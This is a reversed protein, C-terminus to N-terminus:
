EENWKVQFGEVGMLAEVYHLTNCVKCLVNYDRQEVQGNIIDRYLQRSQKSKLEQRGAGKIHNVELLEFVDCGCNNCRAGGM